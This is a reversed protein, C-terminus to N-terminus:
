SAKRRARWEQQRANFRARNNARHENNSVRGCEKCLSRLPAQGRRGRTRDTFFSACAKVDGCRPCRKHDPPINYFEDGPHVSHSTNCGLCLFRIAGSRDHQLTVQRARPGDAILWHMARGCGVCELCQALMELTEYSPVSKGHRKATARMQQFRYHRACFWASGHKRTAPRVCWACLAPRAANQYSPPAVSRACEGRSEGAVGSEPGDPGINVVQSAVKRRLNHTINVQANM